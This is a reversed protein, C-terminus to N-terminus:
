SLCIPKSLYSEFILISRVQWLRRAETLYEVEQDLNIQKTPSFQTELKFKCASILNKEFEFVHKSVIVEDSILRNETGHKKLRFFRPFTRFLFHVIMFHHFIIDCNLLYDNIVMWVDADPVKPPNWQFSKLTKNKWPDCLLISEVVWPHNTSADM